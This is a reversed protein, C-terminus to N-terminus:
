LLMRDVVDVCGTGIYLFDMGNYIFIILLTILNDDNTITIMGFDDPDVAPATIRSYNDPRRLLGPIQIQLLITFEADYRLCRQVTGEPFRYKRRQTTIITQHMICYAARCILPLGLRFLDGGPHIGHHHNSPFVAGICFLQNLHALRM